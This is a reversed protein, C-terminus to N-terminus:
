MDDLPRHPEASRFIERYWLGIREWISPNRGCSACALEQYQGNTVGWLSWHRGRIRRLHIEGGCTCQGLPVREM